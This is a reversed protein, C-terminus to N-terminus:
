AHPPLHPSPVKRYHCQLNDYDLIDVYAGMVLRYYEPRRARPGGNYETLISRIDKQRIAIDRLYQGAIETNRVPDYLEAPIAKFLAATSPLIQFVGIEGARGRVDSRFDSEIESQALLLCHDWSLRNAEILLAHAFRLYPQLPAGPHREAVYEMVAYEVDLSAVNRKQSEWPVSIGAIGVGLLAIFALAVLNKSWM